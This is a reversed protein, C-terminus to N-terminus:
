VKPKLWKNLIKLGDFFRLRQTTCIFVEKVLRTIYYTRQDETSKAGPYINVLGM